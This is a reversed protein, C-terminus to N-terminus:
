GSGFVAVALSAIMVKFWSNEARDPAHQPHWQVPGGYGGYNATHTAASRNSSPNTVHTSVHQVPSPPLPAEAFIGPAPQVHRREGQVGGLTSTSASQTDLHPQSLRIAEDIEANSLGKKVLFKKREELSAGQVKPHKLFQVASQVQDDRLLPGEERGASEASDAVPIADVM